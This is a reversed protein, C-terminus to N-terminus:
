EVMRGLINQFIPLHKIKHIFIRQMIFTALVLPEEHTLLTQAHAKLRAMWALKYTFKETGLPNGNPLYIGGVRVPKPAGILAEVYRAQEDTEDGPLGRRIDEMPYKSLMAVGNYTKQGIHASEYGTEILAEYPFKSDEQKTEQLCLVDPQNDRLWDLVHPLRVNLSNVNWTAFKM